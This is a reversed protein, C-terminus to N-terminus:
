YLGVAAVQAARMNKVPTESVTRVTGLSQSIAGGQTRVDAVRSPEAM